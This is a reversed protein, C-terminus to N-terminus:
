SQPIGLVYSGIDSNIFDYTPDVIAKFSHIGLTMTGKFPILRFGVQKDLESGMPLMKGENSNIYLILSFLMQFIIITILALMINKFIKSNDFLSYFKYIMFAFYFIFFLSSIIDIWLWVRSWIYAMSESITKPKELIVSQSPDTQLELVKEYVFEDSAVLRGITQYFIPRISKQEISEFTAHIIVVSFLLIFIMIGFGGPSLIKFGTGGAKAIAPKVIEAAM